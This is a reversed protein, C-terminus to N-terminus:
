ARRALLALNNAPMAVQEITLGCAALLGTVWAVDKYGIAADQARLSAHFAADGDSTTRGDRLFPGYIMAVGGPALTAAIGELVHAAAVDSILHLLNVLVIVDQGTHADAWGPASADLVVPPLLNPLGAHAAWAAISLLNEPAVDTPQWIVGPHAAAMAAIHQGTGSAIELARGREPVVRALLALIAGANRTASPATRRGDPAVPAGSDPLRLTV